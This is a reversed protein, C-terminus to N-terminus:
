VLVPCVQNSFAGCRTPTHKPLECDCGLEVVDVGYESNCKLYDWYSRINGSNIIDVLGVDLEVVPVWFARQLLWREVIYNCRVSYM